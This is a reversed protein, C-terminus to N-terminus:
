AIRFQTRVFQAVGVLSGSFTPFAGTISDMHYQSIYNAAQQTTSAIPSYNGSTALLSRMNPSVSGGQWCGAIFYLGASLTQSITITKLGTTSTDVTGADLLVTSPVGNSDSNYIGIRWTTSANAGAAEVGIRDITISEQIFLPWLYTRNLTYTSGSITSGTKAEYWYGSRYKFQCPTAYELLKTDALDYASKVANPTAATTTSTSAVSDTLQLIGPSSTTGLNLASAPQDTDLWLLSTNTPPEAQAVFGDDGILGQIGQIGQIGQTGQIGQIGQTGQLGQPSQVGQIGQLGQIGQTGQSGITGQTGQLGQTGQTGQVGQIGQTGQVGQLGQRGQIGQTGQIGTRGPAEVIKLVDSGETTAVIKIKSETNNVPIVKVIPM